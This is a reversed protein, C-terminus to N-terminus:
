SQNRLSDQWVHPSYHPPLQRGKRLRLVHLSHHDAAAAAAPPASLRLLPLHSLYLVPPFLFAAIIIHNQVQLAPSRHPPTLTTKAVPHHSALWSSHKGYAKWHTCTINHCCGVVVPRVWAADRRASSHPRYLLAGAVAATKPTSYQSATRCNPETLPVDAPPTTSSLSYHLVREPGQLSLIRM